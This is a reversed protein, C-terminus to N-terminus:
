AYVRIGAMVYLVVKEMVKWVRDVVGGDNRLMIVETGQRKTM